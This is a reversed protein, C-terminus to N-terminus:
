FQDRDTTRIGLNLFLFVIKRNKKKWWNLKTITRITEVVQVNWNVNEKWNQTICLMLKHLRLFGIWHLVWWKTRIKGRIFFKTNIEVVDLYSSFFFIFSFNHNFLFFFIFIYILMSHTENTQSNFPNAVSIITCNKTLTWAFRNRRIAIPWPNPWWKTNHVFKLDRTPVCGPLSHGLPSYFVADNM